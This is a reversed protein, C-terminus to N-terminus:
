RRSVESKQGGGDEAMVEVRDVLWPIKAVSWLADTLVFRNLGPNLPVNEIRWEALQLNQFDAQGLMGFRVRKAGNVTMGRLLITVSMTQPTLNYVELAAKDELVRWDRFDRFQQWLKVYGWGAGYFAPAAQGDARAQEVVDERTNYFVDVVLRSLNAEYWGDPALVARRLALAPANTLAIHRRFHRRPWDWPRGITPSTKCMELYASDPFQKFFNKVTRPWNYKMMNEYPESPITFTAVVNSPAHYKMENWPEFWRDVIVLTGKPLNADMWRNIMTYPTPNGPLSLIWYVPALACFAIVACLVIMAHEARFSKRGRRQVMGAIRESLLLVGLGAILNFVVWLPTYYRMQFFGSGLGMFVSLAGFLALSFGLLGVTFIRWRAAVLGGAIGASLLGVTVIGRPWGGGWTMVFPLRWMTLFDAFGAGGLFSERATFLATMFMFIWPLLALIWLGFALGLGRAAARAFPENRQAILLGMILAWLLGAFPWSSM